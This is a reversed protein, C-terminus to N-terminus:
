IHILSLAWLIFASVVLAFAALAFIWIMEQSM